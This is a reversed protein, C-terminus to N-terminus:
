ARRVSEFLRELRENNVDVDFESAVKRQGARGMEEWREPARVLEELRDALAAHDHEAVLFGSEGDDILEDNGSHHTALVPMGCAMAEMLAVPIGEMDGNSATVSPLTFLHSEALIRAVEDQDQWGLFEVVEAVGLEAALAELEGRLPGDGIIRYRLPLDQRAHVAAVARIADAIGKKEVLRATSVLETVAEPERRRAQFRFRKSDIGMHHVHVREEPAGMEVLKRAWRGSTPLLLEASAFLPDYFDPSKERLLVTLEYAHFLVALPGEVIGLERMARAREGEHGFHCLVADFRGQPPLRSALGAARKRPQRRILMRLLRRVVRNGPEWYVTREALGYTEFDPHGVPEDGPRGAIVRLDHGRDILGTVNNLVFTQSLTPFVGTVLAIKM